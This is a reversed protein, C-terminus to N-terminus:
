RRTRDIVTKYLGQHSLRKGHATLFLHDSKTTLKQRQKLYALLYPVTKKKLPWFLQRSILQIEMTQLNLDTLKLNIIESLKFKELYYLAAILKDRSKCPELFTDAAIIAYKFTAKALKRTREIKPLTMTLQTELLNQASLFLLLRNTTQLYSCKTYLSLKRKSLYAQYSDVTSKDIQYINKSVLFKRFQNINERYSQLTNPSVKLEGLFQNILQDIEM